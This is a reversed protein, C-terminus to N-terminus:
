NIYAKGQLKEMKQTDYVTLGDLESNKVLIFLLLILFKNM